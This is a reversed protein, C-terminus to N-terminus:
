FHRVLPLVREPPAGSEVTPWGILATAFGYLIWVVGERAIPAPEEHPDAVWGRAAGAVLAASPAEIRLAGGKRLRDAEL